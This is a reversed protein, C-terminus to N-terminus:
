CKPNKPKMALGDMNLLKFSQRSLEHFSSISCVYNDNLFLCQLLM